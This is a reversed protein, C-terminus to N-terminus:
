LFANPHKRFCSMKQKNKDIKMLIALITFGAKPITLPILFLVAESAGGKKKKKSSSLTAAVLLHHTNTCLRCCCREKAVEFWKCRMSLTWTNTQTWNWLLMNWCCIKNNSASGFVLYGGRIMTCKIYCSADINNQLSDRFSILPVCVSM